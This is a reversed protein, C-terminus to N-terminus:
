TGVRPPSYCVGSPDDAVAKLQEPVEGLSPRSNVLRTGRTPDRWELVRVCACVCARVCACTRVRTRACVVVVVVAVTSATLCLHRARHAHTYPPPFCAVKEVKM